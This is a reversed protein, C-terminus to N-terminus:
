LQIKLIHFKADWHSEYGESDEIDHDLILDHIAITRDGEANKRKLIYQQVTSFKRMVHEEHAAAIWLMRNGPNFNILVSPVDGIYSRVVDRSIHIHNGQIRIVSM